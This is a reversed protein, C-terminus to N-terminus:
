PDLPERQFSNAWPALFLSPIYTSVHGLSSAAGHAFLEQGFPQQAVRAAQAM